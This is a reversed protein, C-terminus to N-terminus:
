RNKWSSDIEELNSLLTDISDHIEDMEFGSLQKVEGMREKVRNLFTVYRGKIAYWHELEPIKTEDPEREGSEYLMIMEDLSTKNPTMNTNIIVM